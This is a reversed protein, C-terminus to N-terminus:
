YRIMEVIQSHTKGATKEKLVDSISKGEDVLKQFFDSVILEHAKSKFRGENTMQSEIIQKLFDRELRNDTQAFDKRLAETVRVNIQERFAEDHKPLVGLYYLPYYHQSAFLTIKKNAKFNDFDTMLSTFFLMVKDEDSLPKQQPEEKPKPDINNARRKQAKWETYKTLIEAVYETSFFQFHETKTPYALQRELKFAYAIEELSLGGFKGFILDKLDNKVIDQIGERIGALTSAQQLIVGLVQSTEITKIERLKNQEFSARIFAIESKNGVQQVESLKRYLPEAM